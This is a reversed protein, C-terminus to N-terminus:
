WRAPHRCVHPKWLWMCGFVFRPMKTEMRKIAHEAMWCSRYIRNEKLIMFRFVMRASSLEIFVIKRSSWSDFFWVRVLFCLFSYLHQYLGKFVAIQCCTWAALHLALQWQASQECTSIRSKNIRDFLGDMWGWFQFLRKVFLSKLAVNKYHSRFVQLKYLQNTQFYHKPIFDYSPFVVWQLFRATWFCIFMEFHLFVNWDMESFCTSFLCHNSQFM